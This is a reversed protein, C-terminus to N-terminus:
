TQPTSCNSSRSGTRGAVWKNVADSPASSLHHAFDVQWVGTNFYAAMSRM